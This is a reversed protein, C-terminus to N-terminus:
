SFSWWLKYLLFFNNMRVLQWCSPATTGFILLRMKSLGHNRSKKELNPQGYCAPPPTPPCSRFGPGLHSLSPSLFLSLCFHTPTFIIATQSGCKIHCWHWVMKIKFASRKWGRIGWNNVFLFYFPRLAQDKSWFLQSLFFFLSLYLFM